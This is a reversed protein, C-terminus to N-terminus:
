GHSREMHDLYMESVDMGIIVVNIFMLQWILSRTNKASTFKLFGITKWVYLSSILVEQISFISIQIHEIVFYAEDSAPSKVYTSCFDLIDTVPVVTISTAIIMWKVGMLIKENDLILGLRSYLVLSQCIIMFAWGVDLIIKGLLLPGVNFYTLMMGIAYGVTGLTCLVLSWFYLSKWKKFTSLILLAMELCNYLSLGVSLTVIVSHADYQGHFDQKTIAIQYGNSSERSHLSPMIAM